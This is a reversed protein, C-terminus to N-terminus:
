NVSFNPDLRSLNSIASSKESETAGPLQYLFYWLRASNPNFELGQRSFELSEVYFKNEFLIKVAQIYRDTSQPWQNAAAVIRPLEKSELANRWAADAYFPPLALILGVLAGVPAFAKIQNRGFSTLSSNDEHKGNSETLSHLYIAITMGGLVYGWVALGIQNISIISQATFGVWGFFSAAFVFNFDRSNRLYRLGCTFIYIQTVLYLVFLPIGGNSGQEIFINHPSNTTVNPGPLIMAQADRVRPYWDGFGDPGAGFFPNQLMTEWGARWYAGRISVSSKYVVSTLPGIQLMGAVALIGGMFYGTLASVKIIPHLNSTYLKYVCVAGTGVISVILGQRSSSDIIELTSITLLTLSFIIIKFNKLDSIFRSFVIINFIGLFSSVFNPNGFTGLINGYINNWPLPDDKSIIVYGCYVLNVVGAFILGSLIREYFVKSYHVVVAVSIMSFSLYTLAGTYRGNVGFFSELPNSESGFLPVLLWSVTLVHLGLFIKPLPKSKINLRFWIGYISSFAVVSLLIMKPLNVPDLAAGTWVLLSIAPLGFAIFKENVGLQFKSKM